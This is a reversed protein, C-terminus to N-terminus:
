LHFPSPWDSNLEFQQSPNGFCPLGSSYNSDGLAISTFAKFPTGAIPPIFFPKQITNVCLLTSKSAIHMKDVQEVPIRLLDAVPAKDGVALYNSLIM